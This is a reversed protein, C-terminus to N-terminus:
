VRGSVMMSELVNYIFLYNHNPKFATKTERNEIKQLKPGWIKFVV